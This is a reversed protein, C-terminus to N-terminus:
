VDWRSQVTILAVNSKILPWQEIVNICLISVEENIYYISEQFHAHLDFM